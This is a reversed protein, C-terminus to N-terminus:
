GDDDFGEIDVDPLSILNERGIRLKDIRGAEDMASLLQSVKANSWGTEEVITAQKMRGGNAELLREVREEDSLLEEDIEEEDDGASGAATDAPSDDGGDGAREGLDDAPTPQEPPAPDRRRVLLYVGLLLAAGSLAVAGGLLTTSVGLGGPGVNAQYVIRLDDPEFTQPGDWRLTGDEFEDVIDVPFTTVSFGNPAEVVLTQEASLGNLWTGDTTNFADDVVLRDDNERAFSNWTFSLRLEGVTEADAESEVVEATRQPDEIEMERGAAESAAAAANEFADLGISVEHDGREFRDGLSEFTERDDDDTLRFRVVVQWEADGDPRIQVEFRTERDTEDTQTRVSDARTEVAASQTEASEATWEPDDPAAAVGGAVLLSGGTLSVVLLACLLTVRAPRM